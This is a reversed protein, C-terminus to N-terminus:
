VWVWCGRAEGHLCGVEKGAGSVGGEPRRPRGSAEAVGTM